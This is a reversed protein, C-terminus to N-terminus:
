THPSIVYNWDGHFRGRKVNVIKMEEDTFRTASTEPPVCFQPTFPVGIVYSAVM